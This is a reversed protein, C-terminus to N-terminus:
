SFLTALKQSYVDFWHQWYKHHGKTKLGTVLSQYRIFWADWYDTLQLDSVEWFCSNDPLCGFNTPCMAACQPTGYSGVCHNCQTPDILLVGSEIRIANTPCQVRCRDCAICDSTITYSM